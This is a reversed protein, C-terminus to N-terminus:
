KKVNIAGSRQISFIHIHSQLKFLSIDHIFKEPLPVNGIWVSKQLMKYKLVILRGRLWDRKKKDKEPIDFIILRQIDDEQIFEKEIQQIYKIGISTIKWNSRKKFDSRQVLGDRKLRSLINSFNKKNLYSRNNVSNFGLIERSIRSYSYNEPFFKWHLM